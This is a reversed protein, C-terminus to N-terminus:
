STSTKNLAQSTPFIFYINALDLSNACSFIVGTAKAIHQGQCKSMKRLADNRNQTTLSNAFASILLPDSKLITCFDKKEKLHGAKDYAHVNM